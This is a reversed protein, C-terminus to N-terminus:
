KLGAQKLAHMTGDIVGQSTVTAGTVTDVQLSQQQVIRRPIIKTADLDIKEEHRVQVDAIRGDRIVVTVELDKSESYGMARATYSGDRLRAQALSQMTMRDLKFQVKAAKRPLLHRAYPQDSTPFLRIAEAYHNRAEDAQGMALYVDGMADATTARAAIQWPRPPLHALAERLADLAREYEGFHSLCAAYCHYAHVEHFNRLYKPYEQCAWAYEGGMFLYMPWEHGNGIDGKRRYQWTLKVAARATATDALLRRVELRGDKWPKSMDWTVVTTAFWDPPDKLAALADKLSLRAHPQSTPVAPQSTAVPVDAALLSSALLASLLCCWLPVCRM